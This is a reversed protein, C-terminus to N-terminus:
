ISLSFAILLLIKDNNFPTNNIVISIANDTHETAHPLEDLGGSVGFVLAIFKTLSPLTSISFYLDFIICIPRELGKSSDFTTFIASKKSPEVNADSDRISAYVTKKNFKEPLREELQNLLDSVEGTRKGLCLIKHTEQKSLFHFVEEAKMEEVICNYNVGIINKKWIRGLKAALDASIRFCKTFELKKYEGLFSNIFEKVNLITKDYIKQAMDGVAVIQM